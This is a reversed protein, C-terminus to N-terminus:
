SVSNEVVVGLRQGSILRPSIIWVRWARPGGDSLRRWRRELHMEEAYSCCIGSAEILTMMISLAIVLAEIAEMWPM